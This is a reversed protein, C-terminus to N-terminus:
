RIMSGIRTLSDFSFYILQARGKIRNQDLFHYEWFRSDRSEDRNDGMLFVHDEPIKTKPFDGQSIGGLVYRAYPEELAAGNIYVTTERVEIEDGPLGVVRKIINVASEDERPTQVEDPRTFVVIDGRQPSSWRFLYGLGFPNRLGYSLKTVLIHDGIQLTPKMSGSPIKFAEIVVARLLLAVGIFIIITKVFSVLERLNKKLPSEIVEM